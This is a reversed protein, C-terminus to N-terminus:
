ECGSWPSRAGAGRRYSAGCVAVTGRCEPVHAAPPRALEAGARRARRRGLRARRARRTAQLGRATQKSRRALVPSPGSCRRPGGGGAGERHRRPFTTWGGGSCTLLRPVRAAETRRRRSSKAIAEPLHLREKAKTKENLSPCVLSLHSQKQPFSNTSSQTQEWPSENRLQHELGLADM